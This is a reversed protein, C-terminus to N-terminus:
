LRLRRESSLYTSGSSKKPGEWTQSRLQAQCIGGTRSACCLGGAVQDCTSSHLRAVWESIPCSGKLAWCWRDGNFNPRTPGTSLQEPIEPYKTVRISEHSM